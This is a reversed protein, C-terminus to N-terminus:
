AASKDRRKPQKQRPNIFRAIAKYIALGLVSNLCSRLLNFPIIGPLLIKLVAERTMNMYLPTILLNWGVMSITMALSGLVVALVASLSSRKMRSYVFGIVFCLTGGAIFNMLWSVLGNRAGLLLFQLTAQLFALIVGTAPGYMLAGIVMPIDGAHYSLFSAASFIGPIKIVATFIISLATLMAMTVLKKTNFRTKM